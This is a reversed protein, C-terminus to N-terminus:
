ASVGMLYPPAESRLSAQASPAFLFMEERQGKLHSSTLGPTDLVHGDCVVRSWRSEGDEFQRGM